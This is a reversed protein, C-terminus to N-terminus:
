YRAVVPAVGFDFLYNVGIKIIQKTASVTQTGTSFCGGGDCGTFAVQKTGFGIYDYEAKVTWNRTLAHEIGVGVLFGNLTASGTNTVGNFGDFSSFDFSGWAWGGKGYILTRDFAIGARAAISFDNNNKTTLNFSDGDRISNNSSKISSWAGEGEFGIVWNGDQYNCGLQGGAIAGVGPPDAAVTGELNSSTFPDNQIGGGVHAGIYCGTWSFVPAALIPAKTPMPLDAAMVVVSSAVLYSTSLLLKKLSFDGFRGLRFCDQYSQWM